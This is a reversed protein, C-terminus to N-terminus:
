KTGRRTKRPTSPGSEPPSTNEVQFVPSQSHPSNTVKGSKQIVNLPEIKVSKPLEESVDDVIGGAPREPLISPVHAIASVQMYGEHRILRLDKGFGTTIVTDIAEAEIRDEVVTIGDGTLHQLQAIIRHFLRNTTIHLWPELAELKPIHVELYSNACENLVHAGEKYIVAIGVNLPYEMSDHDYVAVEHIWGTKGPYTEMINDEAPAPRHNIYITINKKYLPNMDLVEAKIIQLIDEASFHAARCRSCLNVIDVSTRKIHKDKTARREAIVSWLRTIRSAM